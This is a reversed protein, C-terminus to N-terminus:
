LPSRLPFSPLSQPQQFLEGGGREELMCPPANAAFACTIGPPPASAIHKQQSIESVHCLVSALHVSARSADHSMPM